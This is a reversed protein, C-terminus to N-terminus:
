KPFIEGPEPQKLDLATKKIAQAGPIVPATLMIVIFINKM